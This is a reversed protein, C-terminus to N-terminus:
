SLKFTILPRYGVALYGRAPDGPIIIAINKGGIWATPRNGSILKHTLVSLHAQQNMALSEADRRMVAVLRSHEIQNFARHGM